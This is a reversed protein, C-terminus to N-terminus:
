LKANVQAYSPIFLLLCIPNHLCPANLTELLSKAFTSVSNLIIQLKNEQGFYGLFCNIPFLAPSIKIHAMVLSIFHLFSMYGPVSLFCNRGPYSCPHLQSQTNNEHTYLSAYAHVSFALQSNFYTTYLEIQIFHPKYKSSMNKQQKYLKSYFLWKNRFPIQVPSYDCSYNHHNPTQIKIYIPVQIICEQKAKTIKMCSHLLSACAKVFKSFNLDGSLRLTGRPILRKTCKASHSVKTSGKM